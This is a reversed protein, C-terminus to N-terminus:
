RYLGHILGELLSDDQRIMQKLKELGVVAAHCHPLMHLAKAYSSATEVTVTSPMRDVAAELLLQLDYKDAMLVLEALEIPEVEQVDGHIIHRIMARAAGQSVSDLVITRTSGELMESQLMRKFVTSAASLLLGPATLVLDGVQVKTDHLDTMAELRQSIHRAYKLRLGDRDSDAAVKRKASAAELNDAKINAISGAAFETRYRGTVENFAVITVVKGNKGPNGLLGKIRVKSGPQFDESGTPPM